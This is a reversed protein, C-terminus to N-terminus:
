IMWWIHFHSCFGCRVELKSIGCITGGKGVEMKKLWLFDQFLKTGFIILVINMRWPGLSTQFIASPIHCLTFTHKYLDTYTQSHLHTHTNTLTFNTDIYSTTPLQDCASHSGTNFTVQVMHQHQHTHTHWHSHLKHRHVFHHTIPRLRFSETQGCSDPLAFGTIFTVQVLSVSQFVKGTSWHVLRCFKM